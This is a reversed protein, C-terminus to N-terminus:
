VILRCRTRSVQRDAHLQQYLSACEHGTPYVNWVCCSWWWMTRSPWQSVSSVHRRSEEGLLSLERNFVFLCVV